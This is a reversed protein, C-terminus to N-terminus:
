TMGAGEQAEQRLWELWCERCRPPTCLLEEGNEGFCLENLDTGPPCGVGVHMEALEEDTMARIRDSNTPEVTRNRRCAPGDYNLLCSMYIDCRDCLTIPKNM